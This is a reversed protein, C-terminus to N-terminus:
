GSEAIVQFGTATTGPPVGGFQVVVHNPNSRERRRSPVASRGPAPLHLATPPRDVGPSLAPGVPDGDGLLGAPVRQQSTWLTPAPSRGPERLRTPARGSAPPHQGTGGLIAGNSALRRVACAGREPRPARDRPEGRREAARDPRRRGAAPRRRDAPHRGAGAPHESRRRQRPEVPREPRRCRTSRRRLSSSRSTRSASGRRRRREPKRERRRRSRSWRQRSSRLLTQTLSSMSEGKASPRSDECVRSLRWARLPRSRRDVTAGCCPAEPTEDRRDSM